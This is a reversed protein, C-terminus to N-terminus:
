QTEFAHFVPFRNTKVVSKMNKNLFFEFLLRVM